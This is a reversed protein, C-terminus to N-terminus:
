CQIWTILEGLSQNYTKVVKPCSVIVIKKLKRDYPTILTKLYAGAFLRLM